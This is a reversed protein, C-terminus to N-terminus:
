QGVVSELVLARYRQQLGYMLQEDEAILEPSRPIVDSQIEIFRMILEAFREMVEELRNKDAHARQTECETRLRAVIRLAVRNNEAVSEPSIQRRGGLLKLLRPILEAFKHM